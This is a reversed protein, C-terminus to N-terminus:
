TITAGRRMSSKNSYSPVIKGSSSWDGGEINSNDSGDESIDTKGEINNVTVAQHKESSKKTLMRRVLM